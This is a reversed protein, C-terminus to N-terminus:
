MHKVRHKIEINLYTTQEINVYEEFFAASVMSRKLSNEFGFDRSESMNGLASKIM